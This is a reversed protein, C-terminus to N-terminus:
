RVLVEPWLVSETVAAAISAAFRHDRLVNGTPGHERRGRSGSWRFVPGVYIVPATRLVLVRPFPDGGKKLLWWQIGHRAVVYENKLDHVSLSM